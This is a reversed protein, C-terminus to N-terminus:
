AGLPAAPSPQPPSLPEHSQTRRLWRWMAATLLWGAVALVWGAARPGTTGMFVDVAHEGVPLDLLLFGDADPRVALPVGDVRATWGPFYFRPVVVASGQNKAEAVFTIRSGRTAYSRITVSPSAPIPDLSAAVIGGNSIWRPLYEGASLAGLARTGVIEQRSLDGRMELPASVARQPGSLLVALVAATIPLGWAKVRTSPASALGSLGALFFTAPGLFRWPFQLFRMGPVHAYLPAAPETTALLCVAGLTLLLAGFRARPGGQVVLAILAVAVFALLVFGIQFSMQDDPGPVSGGFGWSSSLWQRAEVFHAAYDYYGSVVLDFNLLHRRELAAPLWYFATSLVGLIPGAVSAVIGRRGAKELLVRACLYVAAPGAIMLASINHSLIILATSASTLLAGRGASRPALALDLGLFLYPFLALAAFEALAGRVYIDVFHYPVFLYLVAALLGGADGAHRRIWVYMGSAGGLFTGWLAVKVSAILPVGALYLLSAAYYFFPSYFDFFPLGEGHYAASVWRPYPDGSAIEDAMAIVRELPQHGEHSIYWGAHLLPSAAVVSLIALALLPLLLRRGGARVGEVPPIVSGSEELM